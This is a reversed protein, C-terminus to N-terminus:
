KTVFSRNRLYDPDAHLVLVVPMFDAYILNRLCNNIKEPIRPETASATMNITGPRYRDGANGKRNTKKM